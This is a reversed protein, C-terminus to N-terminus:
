HWINNSYDSFDVYYLIRFGLVFPSILALTFPRPSRLFTLSLNYYGYLRKGDFACLRLIANNSIGLDM